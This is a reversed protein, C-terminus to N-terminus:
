ERTVIQIDRWYLFREAEMLECVQRTTKNLEEHTIAKIIAWGQSTPLWVEWPHRDTKSEAITVLERKVLEQFGAIYRAAITPNMEDNLQLAGLAGRPAAHPLVVCLEQTHRRYAPVTEVNIQGSPSVRRLIERAEASQIVPMPRRKEIETPKPKTEDSVGSALESIKRRAIELQEDKMRMWQDQAMMASNLNRIEQRFHARVLFFVIVSVLAAASTFAIPAGTIIEYEQAGHKSLWDLFALPDMRHALM